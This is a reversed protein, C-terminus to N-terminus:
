SLSEKINGFIESIKERFKSKWVVRSRSPISNIFCGCITIHTGIRSRSCSTLPVYQLIIRHIRSSRPFPTTSNPAMQDMLISCVWTPLLSKEFIRFYPHDSLPWSAKAIDSHGRLILPLLVICGHFLDCESWGMLPSVLLPAFELQHARGEAEFFKFSVIQEKLSHSSLPVLNSESTSPYFISDGPPLWSPLHM